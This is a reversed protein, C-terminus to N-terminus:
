RRFAGRYFSRLPRWFQVMMRDYSVVDFDRWRWDYGSRGQSIEESNCHHIEEILDTRFAYVACNRWMVLGAVVGVGVILIVFIM